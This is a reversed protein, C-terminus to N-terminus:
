PARTSRDMRGSPTGDSGYRRREVLRGSVALVPTERCLLALYAEELHGTPPWHPCCWPTGLFGTAVRGDAERRPPSPTVSSRGNARRFSGSVLAVACGTQNSLPARALPGVDLGRRARGVGRLSGGPARGRHALGRARHPPATPSSPTRWTPRLGSQGGLAPGAARRIWGTASSSRLAALWGARMACPAIRDLRAHEPVPRSHRPMAMPRMSPGRCSPPRTRGAREGSGRRAQLVVDPVVSPVGLM